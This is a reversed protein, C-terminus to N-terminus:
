KISLSKLTTNILQLWRFKLMFMDGSLTGNYILERQHRNLFPKEM